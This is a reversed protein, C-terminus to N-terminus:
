LSSWLTVSFGAAALDHGESYDNFFVYKRVTCDSFVAVFCFKNRTQRRLTTHTYTHPTKSFGRELSWEGGEGCAVYSPLCTALFLSVDQNRLQGRTRAFTLFLLVFLFFFFM